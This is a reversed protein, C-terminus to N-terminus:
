NKLNKILKEISINYNKWIYNKISNHYKILYILTKKNYNESFSNNLTSKHSLKLDIHFEKCRIYKYGNLMAAYTYLVDDPCKIGKNIRNLTTKLYIEKLKNNFFEYKVISGAGFHSNIITGNINWDTYDLSLFQKILELLSQIKGEM